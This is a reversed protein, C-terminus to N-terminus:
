KRRPKKMPRWGAEGPERFFFTEVMSSTGSVMSGIRSERMTYHDYGKVFRRIYQNQQSIKCSIKTEGGKQHHFSCAIECTKCGTCNKTDFIM